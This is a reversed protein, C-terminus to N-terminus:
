WGRAEPFTLPPSTGPGACRTLGLDCRGDGGSWGRGRRGSTRAGRGDTASGGVKVPPPRPGGGSPAGRGPPGDRHRYLLYCTVWM